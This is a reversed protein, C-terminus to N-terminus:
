AMVGALRPSWASSTLKGAASLVSTEPQHSWAPSPAGTTTMAERLVPVM